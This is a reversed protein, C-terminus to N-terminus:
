DLDMVGPIKLRVRWKNWQLRFDWQIPISPDKWEHGWWSGPGHEKYIEKKFTCLGYNKRHSHIIKNFRLELILLISVQLNYMYKQTLVMYCILKVMHRTDYSENAFSYSSHFNHLFGYKLQYLLYYGVTPQPEEVYM